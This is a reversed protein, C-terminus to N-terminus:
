FGMGDHRERPLMHWVHLLVCGDRVVGGGGGAVLGFEPLHGVTQTAAHVHTLLLMDDEAKDVSARVGILPFEEGTDSERLLGLSSLRALSTQFDASRKRPFNLAYSYWFTIRGMMTMRRSSHTSMWHRSAFIASPRVLRSGM